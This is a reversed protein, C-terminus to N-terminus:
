ARESRAVRADEPFERRRIERRRPAEAAEVTLTLVSDKRRRVVHRIEALVHEHGDKGCNAAPVQHSRFTGEVQAGDIVKPGTWGKPTRLVLMPWKPRETCGSRAKDQIAKIKAVIEDMKREVLELQKDTLDARQAALSM